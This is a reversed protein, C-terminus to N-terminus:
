GDVAAAIRSLADDVEADTTQFSTVFRVLGPGMRYFLLGSQQIEGIEAGVGVMQEKIQELAEKSEVALAYHDIAGRHGQSRRDGIIDDPAVEFVNL